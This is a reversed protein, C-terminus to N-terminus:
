EGAHVLSDFHDRAYLHVTLPVPHTCLPGPYYNLQAFGPAVYIHTFSVTSADPRHMCPSLPGPEPLHSAHFDIFDAVSRPRLAQFLQARAQRAATEAASSSSLPQAHPLAPQSQDADVFKLRAIGGCMEEVMAAQGYRLGIVAITPIRSSRAENSNRRRQSRHKRNRKKQKTGAM